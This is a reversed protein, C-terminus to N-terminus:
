FTVFLQSCNKRKESLQMEIQIQLNECEQVLYKGDATLTKVVVGFVEGLVLSSVKPILKGSFSSFCSLLTRM